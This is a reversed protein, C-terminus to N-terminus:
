MKLDNLADSYVGLIQFAIKLIMFALLAMVAIWIVVSAIMAITSLASKAKDQYQEALRDLSETETGSLEGIRVADIFEEPLVHAAEFADGFSEGKEVAALAPDMGGIYYYNGTSLFAQRLARQADVGANLMMSLTMSLRSLGLTVFASGLVPIKQVLPVLTKHCNFWNKWLGYAILALVAVTGFVFMCYTLFGGFGKLGLGLPDFDSNPLVIGILLIFLGVIVIALGLQILPWSIAGFFEQRTKKLQDYYDAMYHFMHEMRGGLESAGVMQVLLRPFYHKEEAMAKSLSNGDRIHEIVRQMARRHRDDGTKAETELLRLIDVGSHLGIGMRRCFNSAAKLRMM